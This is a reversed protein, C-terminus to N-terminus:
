ISWDKKDTNTFEEVKVVKNSSGNDEYVVVSVKYNEDKGLNNEM